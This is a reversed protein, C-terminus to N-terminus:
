FVFVSALAKRFIMHGQSQLSQALSERLCNRWRSEFGPREPSLQTDQGALSYRIRTLLSSHVTISSCWVMCAGEISDGRDKGQTSEWHQRLATGTSGWYQGWYQGVYQGWYQVLVTGWYKKM